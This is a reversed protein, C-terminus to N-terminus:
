EADVSMIQQRRLEKRLRKSHGGTLMDLSEWFGASHDKYGTHVLEHLIVYDSLHDPLMVLWSNLNIGNKASCSGWRTKMRRIKVGSIRFGHKQALAEVRGPLYALAEVQLIRWIAEETGDSMSNVEIPIAKGRICITDWENVTRKVSPVLEKRKAVIWHRKSLLFTEARKFGVFGPVTVRVEGQQNIRISLNKARRNRVYRVKGVSPYYQINETKNM